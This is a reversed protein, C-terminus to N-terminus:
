DQSQAAAAVSSRIIQKLVAVFAASYDPNGGRSLALWPSMVACRLTKVSGVGNFQDAPVGLAALHEDLCSRGESGKLGYQSFALSTSSIIFNHRQIVSEPNFKLEDYIAQNIRNM